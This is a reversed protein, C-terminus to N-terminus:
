SSSSTSQDSSSSSSSSNDGNGGHHNRNPMGTANVIKRALDPLKAKLADAKDQALHGNSVAQDIRQNGADVIAKVVDDPNVGKSNAVDAISQGNRRAQILDKPTVGIKDAAVKLMGGEIRARAHGALKGKDQALADKLAQIVANEQDQNITGNAVLGDLADKAAKARGSGHNAPGSSSAPPSSQTSTQAGAPMVTSLAFAGGGLAAVIGLSGLLKKM